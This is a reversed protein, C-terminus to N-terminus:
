KIMNKIEELMHIDEDVIKKIDYIEENTYKKIYPLRQHKTHIAMELKNDIVAIDVSSVFQNTHIFQYLHNFFSPLNIESHSSLNGELQKRHYGFLQTDHDDKKQIDKFVNIIKDSMGKKDKYVFDQYVYPVVIYLGKFYYTRTRKEGFINYAEAHFMQIKDDTLEYDVDISSYSPVLHWTNLNFNETQYQYNTKHEINYQDAVYQYIVDVSNKVKTKYKKSADLATMFLTIILLIFSFFIILVGPTLLQDQEIIIFILGLILMFLIIFWQYKLTKHKTTINKLKVTEFLSDM